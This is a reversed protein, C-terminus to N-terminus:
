EDDKQNEDDDEQTEITCKYSHNNEATHCCQGCVIYKAVKMKSKSDQLKEM